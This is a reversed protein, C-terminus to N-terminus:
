PDAGLHGCSIGGIGRTSELSRRTAKAPLSPPMVCRSAWFRTRSDRRCVPRDRQAAVHIQHHDTGVFQRQVFVTQQVLREPLPGRFALQLDNRLGLEPLPQAHKVVFRVHPQVRRGHQGFQQRNGHRDNAAPVAALQDHRHAFDPSQRIEIELLHRRGPLQGRQQRGARRGIRDFSLQRFQGAVHRVDLSRQCLQRHDHLALLQQQPLPFPKISGPPWSRISKSAKSRGAFRDRVLRGGAGRWPRAASRCNITM